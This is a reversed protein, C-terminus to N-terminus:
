WSGPQESPGSRSSIVPITETLLTTLTRSLLVHTQERSLSGHVLWEMAGSRAFAVYARLAARLPSRARPHPTRGALRLIVDVTAEDAEAIVAALDPDRGPTAAGMAAVWADTHRAIADLFWTTAGDVRATLDGDPITTLATDPVTLLVRVVELYLEKKTGFYHNVLGRAVGAAAAIDATSVEDYGRAGFLRVACGLIQRRRADPEWRERRRAASTSM